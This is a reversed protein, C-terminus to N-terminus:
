PSESTSCSATKCSFILSCSIVTWLKGQIKRWRKTAQIDMLCSAILFFWSKDHRFNLCWSRPFGFGGKGDWSDNQTVDAQFGEDVFQLLQQWGKPSPKKWPGPLQQSPWWQKMTLYRSPPHPFGHVIFAPINIPFWQISSIGEPLSVHSNFIAM